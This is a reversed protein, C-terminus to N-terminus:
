LSEAAYRPSKDGGLTFFLHRSSTQKVNSLEGGVSVDSLLADDDLMGKVYRNLDSVSIPKM